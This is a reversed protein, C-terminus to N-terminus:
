DKDDPFVDDTAGSNKLINQMFIDLLVSVNVGSKNVTLWNAGIFLQFSDNVSEKIIERFLDSKVMERISCDTTLFFFSEDVGLIAAIKTRNAGRPKSHDLEWNSVTTLSVGIGDAVDQQTLNKSLRANKIREGIM